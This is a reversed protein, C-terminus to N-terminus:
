VSKNEEKEAASAAEKALKEALEAAKKADDERKKANEDISKQIKSEKIALIKEKTAGEEM